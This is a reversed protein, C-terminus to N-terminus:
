IVIFVILAMLAVIWCIGGVTYLVRTNFETNLPAVEAGGDDGDVLIHVRSGVRAAQIEGGLFETRLSRREQMGSEAATVEYVLDLQCERSLPSQEPEGDISAAFNSAQRLVWRLVDPDSARSVLRCRRATVVATDRNGAATLASYQTAVFACIASSCFLVISLLLVMYRRKRIAELLQM